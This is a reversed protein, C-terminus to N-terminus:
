EDWPDLHKALRRCARAADSHSVTRGDEPTGFLEVSERSSLGLVNMAHESVSFYTPWTTASPPWLTCAAGAICGVTGCSNVILWEEMRFRFGGPGSYIVERATVPGTGVPLADERADEASDLFEALAELRERNM